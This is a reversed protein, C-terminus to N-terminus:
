KKAILGSISDPVKLKDSIIEVMLQKERKRYAPIKPQMNMGLVWNNTKSDKNATM